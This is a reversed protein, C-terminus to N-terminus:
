KIFDKIKESNFNEKSFFEIFKIGDPNEPTFSIELCIKSNEAVNYFYLYIKSCVLVGISLRLDTHSMYNLLQKEFDDNKQM